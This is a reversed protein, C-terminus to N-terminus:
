FYRIEIEKSNDLVEDYDVDDISNYKLGFRTELEKLYKQNANETKSFAYVHEVLGTISVIIVCLSEAEVVDGNKVDNIDVVFYKLEDTGGSVEHYLDTTIEKYNSGLMENAEKLFYKDALAENTFKQINDYIGSEIKLILYAKM